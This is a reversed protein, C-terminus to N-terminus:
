LSSSSYSDSAGAPRILAEMPDVGLKVHPPDDGREDEWYLKKLKREKEHELHEDLVAAGPDFVKGHYVDPPLFSCSATDQALYQCVHLHLFIAVRQNARQTLRWRHRDGVKDLYFDPEDSKEDLQLWGSTDLWFVNMDGDARLRDVTSQTAHEFQGQLPRMIFIPISAPSTGLGHDLQDSPSRTAVGPHKPYALLRIARVLSVFSNEFGAYHEQSTKNYEDFHREISDFDSAGINLIKIDSRRHLSVLSSM